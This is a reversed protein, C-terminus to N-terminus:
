RKNPINDSNAEIYKIWESDAAQKLQRKVKGFRRYKLNGTNPVPCDVYMDFFTWGRREYWRQLDPRGDVIDGNLVHAQLQVAAYVEAISFIDAGLGLSQYDPDIGYLSLEVMTVSDINNHYEFQLATCTQQKLQADYVRCCSICGIVGHNELKSSDNWGDDRVLLIFTYGKRFYESTQEETLRQKIHKGVHTWGHQQKGHPKGCYSWNIVNTIYPIDAEDAVRLVYTKGNRQFTRLVTHRKNLLPNPNSIVNNICLAHIRRNATHSTM